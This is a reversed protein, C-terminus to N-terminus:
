KSPTQKKEKKLKEKFYGGCSRDGYLSHGTGFKTHDYKAPRIDANVKLMTTKVFDRADAMSADNIEPKLIRPSVINDFYHFVTGSAAAYNGHTRANVQLQRIHIAPDFTGLYVVEGPNVDFALTDDHFCIGWYNQQNVSLFVYSGAKVSRAIFEGTDEYGFPIKFRVWGSFSNYETSLNEKNFKTLIVNADVNTKKVRMLLIATKSDATLKLESPPTSVCGSLIFLSLILTISHFQRKYNSM